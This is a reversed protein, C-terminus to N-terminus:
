RIGAPWKGLKDQYKQQNSAVNSLKRIKIFCFLLKRQLVLSTQSPCSSNLPNQPAGRFKSALTKCCFIYFIIFVINQFNRPKTFILGKPPCARDFVHQTTPRCRSNKPHHVKVLFVNKSPRARGSPGRKGSWFINVNKKQLFHSFM